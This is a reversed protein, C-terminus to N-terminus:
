KDILLKIREGSFFYTTRLIETVSLNIALFRLMLSPLQNESAICKVM